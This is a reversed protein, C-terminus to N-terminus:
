VTTSKKINSFPHLNLGCTQKVISCIVDAFIRNEFTRSVTTRSAIWCQAQLIGEFKRNRSQKAEKLQCYFYSNTEATERCETTLWWQYGVKCKRAWARLKSQLRGAVYAWGTCWTKLFSHRFNKLNLWSIPRKIWAKFRAKRQRLSLSLRWFRKVSTQIRRKSRLEIRYSMSQNKSLNRFTLLIRNEVSLVHSFNVLLSGWTLLYM